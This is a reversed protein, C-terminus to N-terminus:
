NMSTTELLAKLSETQEAVHRKRKWSYYLQRLESLNIERFDDRRTARCAITRIAAADSRYGTARLWSGIVKYVLRRWHAIDDIKSAAESRGARTTRPDTIDHLRHRLEELDADSLDRSSEVHWPSLFDIWADKDLGIINRMRHIDALSARRWASMKQENQNM